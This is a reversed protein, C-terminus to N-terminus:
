LRCEHESSVRRWMNTILARRSLPRVHCFSRGGVDDEGCKSIIILLSFLCMVCMLRGRLLNNRSIQAADESVSQLANEM